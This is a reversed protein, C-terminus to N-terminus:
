VLLTITMHNRQRSKTRLFTTSTQKSGLGMGTASQQNGCKQDDGTCEGTVGEVAFLLQVINVVQAVHRNASRSSSRSDQWRM